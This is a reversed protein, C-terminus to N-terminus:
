RRAAPTAASEAPAPSRAPSAAATASASAPPSGSAPRRCIMLETSPGERLRAVLALELPYVLGGVARGVLEGRAALSALLWWSSHLLRSHSDVPANLLAFMPRRRVIEFGAGHVAAEIEELSRSVQHVGRAAPAHLFNDSFVLVGGPELLEFLTGFAAGFRDDDVIHFLVDFASIAEFRRDGFPHDSTGVDFRAFDDAPYRRRLEAVATETLDSGVVRRVGVEHWREVYFGTGTGVDLVRLDPRGHALPGVERLFVHRRVRYMWDNFARSLGGFGVGDSAFKEALRREWYSDPDFAAM